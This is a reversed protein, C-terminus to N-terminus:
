FAECSIRVAASDAEFNPLQSRFIQGTAAIPAGSVGYFGVSYRYCAVNAGRIPFLVYGEALNVM